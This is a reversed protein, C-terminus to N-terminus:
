LHHTSARRGRTMMCGKLTGSVYRSSSFDTLRQLVVSNSEGLRRGVDFALSLDQGRGTKWECGGEGVDDGWDRVLEMPSYGVLFFRKLEFLRKLEVDEYLVCADSLELLWIAGKGAGV